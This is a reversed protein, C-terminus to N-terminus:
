ESYEVWSITKKEEKGKKMIKELSEKNGEDEGLTTKMNVMM